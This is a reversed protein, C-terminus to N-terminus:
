HSGLGQYRLQVSVAHNLTSTEIGSTQEDLTFYYGADIWFTRALHWSLSAEAYAYDRDFRNSLTGATEKGVAEQRIYTAGLSTGLQPSLEKSFFGRLVDQTVQAGDSNPQISRSASVETTITRNLQQRYFLRGVFNEDDTKLTCLVIEQQQPDFCAQQPTDPDEDDDITPLGTLEIESRSTGVTAGISTTETLLYEYGANISYTVTENEVTSGPQEAVFGDISAGLSLKTKQGLSHTWTMGISLADYNSRNTLDAETYRVNEFNADFGLLDTSSLQFNASPGLYFREQDEDVTVVRGSSGGGPVNPDAVRIESERTSIQSYGTSVAYQSRLNTWVGSLPLYYNAANLQSDEDTGAYLAFRVRPKASLSVRGSQGRIDLSGEFTTAYADDEPVQDDDVYFPNTEYREGVIATPLYDWTM